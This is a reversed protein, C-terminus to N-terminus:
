TPPPSNPRAAESELYRKEWDLSLSDSQRITFPQLATRRPIKIQLFDLVARLAAAYDQCLEEYQIPFPEAGLHRFFNNWIKEEEETEDLCRTILHRDFEVAAGEGRGPQVKWLGSQVARAKSVAQRLKDRRTIQIFRLQPFASRLIELDPTAENGFARTTRLWRLCDHLYWSQLKFGFVRNSTSTHEITWRVYAAFPIGPPLRRGARSHEGAAPVFFQNPRGARGTERLGDSL